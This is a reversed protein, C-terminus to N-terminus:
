FRPLDALSRRWTLPYSLSIFSACFLCVKFIQAVPDFTDFILHAALHLRLM